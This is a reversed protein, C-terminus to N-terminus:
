SSHKERAGRNFVIGTTFYRTSLIARFLKGDTRQKQSSSLAWPQLHSPVADRFARPHVYSDTIEVHIGHVPRLRLLVPRLPEHILGLHLSSMWLREHRKPNPWAETNAPAKRTGGEERGEGGCQRRGANGEM